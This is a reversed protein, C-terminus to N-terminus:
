GPPPWFQVQHYRSLTPPAQRNFHSPNCNLDVVFINQHTTCHWFKWSTIFKPQVAVIRVDWTDTCFLQVSKPAFGNTMGWTVLPFLHPRSRAVTTKRKWNEAHATIDHKQMKQPIPETQAYPLEPRTKLFFYCGYATFYTHPWRTSLAKNKLKHSVVNRAAVQHVTWCLTHCDKSGFATFLVQHVFCTNRQLLSIPVVIATSKLAQTWWTRKKSVM